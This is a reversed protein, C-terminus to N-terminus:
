PKPRVPTGRRVYTKQDHSHISGPVIKYTTPVSVIRLPIDSPLIGQSSTETSISAAIIRAKRTDQALFFNDLLLFLFM